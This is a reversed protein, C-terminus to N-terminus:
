WCHHRALVTVSDDSGSCPGVLKQHMGDDCALVGGSRDGGYMYVLWGGVCAMVTPLLGVLRWCMGDGYAPSWGVETM